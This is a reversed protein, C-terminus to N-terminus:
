PKCKHVIKITPSAKYKIAQKVSKVYTISIIEKPVYKIGMKDPIVYKIIGPESPIYKVNYTGYVRGGGLVISCFHDKAPNCGVLSSVSILKEGATM